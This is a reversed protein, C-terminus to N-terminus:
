FYEVHAQMTNQLSHIYIYIVQEKPLFWDKLFASLPKQSFSIIDFSDELGEYIKRYYTM